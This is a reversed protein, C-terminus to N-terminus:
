PKDGLYVATTPTPRNSKPNHIDKLTYHVCAVIAVICVGLVVSPIIVVWARDGSDMDEFFKM